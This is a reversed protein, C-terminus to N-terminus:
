LVTNAAPSRGSAIGPAEFNLPPHSKSAGPKSYRNQAQAQGAEHGHLAREHLAEWAAGRRVRPLVACSEPFAAKLKVAKTHNPYRLDALRRTRSKAALAHHETRFIITQWQLRILSDSISDAITL